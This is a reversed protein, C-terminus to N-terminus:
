LILGSLMATVVTLYQIGVQCLAAGQQFPAHCEAAPLATGPFSDQHVFLFSEGRGGKNIVLEPNLTQYFNM